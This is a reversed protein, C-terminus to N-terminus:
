RSARPRLQLFAQHTDVSVVMLEMLAHERLNKLGSQLVCLCSKFLFTLKWLFLHRNMSTSTNLYLYRVLFVRNCVLTENFM